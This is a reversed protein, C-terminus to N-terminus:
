KNISQVRSRRGDFARWRPLRAALGWLLRRNPAVGPSAPDRRFVSVIAPRKMGTWHIGPAKRRRNGVACRGSGSWRPEGPTGFPVASPPGVPYRTPGGPPQWHLMVTDGARRGDRTRNAAPRESPRSVAPKGREVAITAALERIEACRQWRRLARLGGPQLPRGCRASRLRSTLVVSGSCADSRRTVSAAWSSGASACSWGRRRLPSSVSRSSPAWCRFRVFRDGSRWPTWCRRSSRRRRVRPHGRM